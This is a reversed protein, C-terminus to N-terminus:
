STMHWIASSFVYTVAENSNLTFDVAGRNFIYGAPNHKIVMSNVSDNVITLRYARPFRTTNPMERDIVNVTVGADPIARVFSENNRGDWTPTITQDTGTITPESFGYRPIGVGSIQFKGRGLWNNLYSNNMEIGALNTASFAIVLDVNDASFSQVLGGVDIADQINTSGVTLSGYLGNLKVSNLTGTLQMVQGSVNVFSANSVHTSYVTGAGGSILMGTTLGSMAINSIQLENVAIGTSGNIDLYIGRTASNGTVNSINIREMQADFSNIRILNSTVGLSGEISVNNVNVYDCDGFQTDAKIIIGDLGSRKSILNSINARQVKFAFPFFSNQAIVNNVLCNVYGEVLCGHYPDTPDACLCVVNEVIASDGRNNGGSPGANYSISLANEPSSPFAASGHDIGINRVAINKGTLKLTGVIISGSELATGTGNIVPMKEGVISVNNTANAGATYKYRGAPFYLSRGKASCATIGATIASTVDVLTGSKVSLIQAETMFDFVSLWDLLKSKVTRSVAGTEPQIFGVYSSGDSKDSLDDVADQFNTATLLSNPGPTYILVVDSYRETAAPASYVVSGNKNMVRISYDSNVYLRAPTGSNSPYGGLTRIPQAAPITLAADFYVNIPNVQPDLNVQGIWVYGDELPQGDTETFIPYTPQISLASM